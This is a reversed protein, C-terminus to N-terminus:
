LVGCQTAARLVHGALLEPEEEHAVHGLDPLYRVSANDCTKAIDVAQQPDVAEDQEAVFLHLPVPMRRIDRRLTRLDWNSMMAFTAAMHSPRQLVKSYRAVAERDLTSGTKAIIREVARPDRAKRALSDTVLRSASFLGALPALLRGVAGGYTVFAGNIAVVGKPQVLKDLTMRVGLAAGASHGVVIEPFVKLEKLLRSTERAMAPLSMVSRRKLISDGHGPLDVAIVTFNNELFPMMTEWSHKAAGLGHLLLAVPGTGRTVVSWRVGLTEILKEDATKGSVRAGCRVSESLTPIDSRASKIATNM